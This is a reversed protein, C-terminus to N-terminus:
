GSRPPTAAIQSALLDPRAVNGVVIVAPPKVGTEGAFRVIDALTGRTVREEVTTGSEVIAVPTAPDAGGALGATVIDPLAAVGMLVVVTTGEAMATVATADAGAHGSTVLVATSLGRQTVPIGARAPVSLASTVGPVVEVPVGAAICAHAEEGGRGLVFPDGGKLRVVTRGALAHEVLIANIRDQPVPHTDPSKGVNIVEVDYPVSVLLEATGLRDAVVVDAEALAQRGRVTVLGPDGPGAGVLIVRGHGERRRRLDVEGADVHAALADRVARIRRPDPTGTSIVGIALDGHRSLAAQRASGHSADSADICFVRRAEAWAAVRDNVEPADTAALVFWAEALDAEEIGREHWVLDGHQAHQRIDATAVPAVVVLDAGEALFRRVRRSAVNGAGAVVVRRDKLDIGFLATM